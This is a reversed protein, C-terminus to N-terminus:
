TTISLDHRYIISVQGEHVSVQGIPVCGMRQYFSHATSLNGGVVICFADEGSAVFHQKLAEYLRVAVGNRRASESVAISYLEANPYVLTPKKKFSFYVIEIIRKLKRPNFVSPLLALLFIPLRKMIQRYILRAGRGGAVFGVVQGNIREIFLVSNPDADLSQYLLSLFHEGLAPLFGQSICQMHIRAIERYTSMSEISNGVKEPM